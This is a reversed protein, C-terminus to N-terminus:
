HNSTPAPLWKKKYAEFYAKQQDRTLKQWDKFKMHGGGKMTAERGQSDKNYYKRLYIEISM